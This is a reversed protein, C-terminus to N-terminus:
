EWQNSRLLLGVSCWMGQEIYWKYLEPTFECEFRRIYGRIRDSAPVLNNASAHYSLESLARFDRYTEALKFAHDTSGVRVARPTLPSAPSVSSTFNVSIGCSILDCPVFSKKSGTANGNTVVGM